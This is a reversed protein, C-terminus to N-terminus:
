ADTWDKYQSFADMLEDDNNFCYYVGKNRLNEFINLNLKESESKPVINQTFKSCSGDRNTGWMGGCNNIVRSDQFSAQKNKEPITHAVYNKGYHKDFYTPYFANHSNTPSWSVRWKKGSEEELRFIHSFLMAYDGPAGNKILRHFLKVGGESHESAFRSTICGGCVLNSPKEVDFLYYNGNVEEADKTVIADAYPSQNIFYDIFTLNEEKTVKPKPTQSGTIIWKLEKEGGIKYLGAHCATNNSDIYQGDKTIVGCYTVVSKGSAHGKKFSEIAKEYIKEM